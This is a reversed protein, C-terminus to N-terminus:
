LWDTWCAVPNVKNSCAVHFGFERAEVNAQLNAEGQKVYGGAFKWDAFRRWHHETFGPDIKLNDVKRGM